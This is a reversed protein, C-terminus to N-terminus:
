EEGRERMFNNVLVISQHEEDCFHIKIPDVREIGDEFEVIGYVRSFVGGPHGGRLPSPEIVESFQEWTHFEGYRGNVECSRTQWHIKFNTFQAM